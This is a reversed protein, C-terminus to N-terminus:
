TLLLRLASGKCLMALLAHLKHAEAKQPESLAAFRVNREPQLMLVRLNAGLQGGLLRAYSQFCFSWEHWDQEEGSFTEPRLWRPDSGQEPPGGAAAM